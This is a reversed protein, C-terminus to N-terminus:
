FELSQAKIIRDSSECHSDGCTRREGNQEIIMLSKATHIWAWQELQGCDCTAYWGEGTVWEPSDAAFIDTNAKTYLRRGCKTCTCSLAKANGCEKQQQCRVEVQSSDWVTPWNLVM